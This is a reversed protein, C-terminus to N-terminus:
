FTKYSRQSGTITNSLFVAAAEDVEARGITEALGM